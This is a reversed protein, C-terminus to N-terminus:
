KSIKLSIYHEFNSKEANQVTIKRFMTSLAKCVPQLPLVDM